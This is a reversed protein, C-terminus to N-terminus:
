DTASRVARAPLGREVLVSRQGQSRDLLNQGRGDRQPGEPVDRGWGPSVRLRSQRGEDDGLGDRNGARLPDKARGRAMRQTRNFATTKGAYKEGEDYFRAKFWGCHFCTFRVGREDIHVTLCRKRRNHPKRTASCKPCTTSQRGDAYGRRVTVGEDACFDAASITAM